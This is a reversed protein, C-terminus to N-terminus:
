ASPWRTSSGRPPLDGRHRGADRPGAALGPTGRTRRAGVPPGIVRLGLGARRSGDAFDQALERDGSSCSAPTTAAARLGGFRGSPTARWPHAAQTVFLLLPLAPQREAAQLPVARSTLVALVPRRRAIDHGGDAAGASACGTCGGALAGRGLGTRVIAPPWRRGSSRGPQLRGDVGFRLISILAFVGDASAGDAVMLALRLATIHRRIM